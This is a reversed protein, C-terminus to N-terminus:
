KRILVVASGQAGAFSDFFKRAKAYDAPAVISDTLTVTQLFVVEGDKVAWSAEFKGYEGAVSVTDPIEDAEFGPPVKLRITNTHSRARVKLPTTRAKEPLVYDSDPVLTGPAFVLLRNQMLQGFQHVEFAVDAELKADEASKKLTASALAIGGLRQSLSGEFLRRTGKDDGVLVRLTAAPYGSYVRRLNAKLAGNPLVSGAVVSHVHNRSPPELPLKVLDAGDGTVVLAHSGQEEEPLHGLPTNPDTPDFILLRGLKADAIIAPLQVEDPVRV